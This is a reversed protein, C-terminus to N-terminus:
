SRRQGEPLPPLDGEKPAGPIWANVDYGLRQWFGIHETDIAEIGTLWKVSKYAFMRSVVLRVPGGEDHTLPKGDKLIAIIMDNLYAQDLTLADTYVGDYSTFKIHTARDQVGALDLFYSLPIGEWTVNRVSWGSVCHFDRVWVSRPLKEVEPWTLSIPRQVLGKVELRWVEQNFFFPARAVNYIRFRGQAGGGVPPSSLPGPQPLPDYTVTARKGLATYGGGAGKLWWALSAISGLVILGGAGTILERRRERARNKHYATLPNAIPATEYGAKLRAWPLALDVRRWRLLAHVILYPAGIWTFVDHLVLAVQTYPLFARDWWLVIGSISWGLALILAVTTNLRKGLWRGMSRWHRAAYVLYVGVLAISVVGAGIHAQKIPVRVPALAARLAPLYLLLGTVIMVLLCWAYGRHVWALRQSVNRREGSM